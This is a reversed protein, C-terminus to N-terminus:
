EVFNRLMVSWEWYDLIFRALAHGIVIALVVQFMRAKPSRPHRFFVDLKFEQLLVWIFLISLIATVISLLGSVGSLTGLQTSIDEGNM